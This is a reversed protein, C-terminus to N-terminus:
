SSHLRSQSQAKLSHSANQSSCLQKRAICVKYMLWFPYSVVAPGSSTHETTTVFAALPKSNSVAPPHAPPSEFEAVAQERTRAGCWARWGQMGVM